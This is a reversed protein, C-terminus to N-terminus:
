QTYLKPIVPNASRYLNDIHNSCLLAVIMVLLQLPLIIFAASSTSSLFDQQYQLFVSECSPLPARPFCRIDYSPYDGLSRYGCCSLANQIILRDDRTYENIWSFKLKQYLSVHNRRFCIYGISTFMAFLPWLLIAYISLVKRSQRMIGIYGLLAIVIGFPPTVMMMYLANRNAIMMIGSDLYPKSWTAGKWSMVMVVTCAVSYFLLISNALFLLVKSRTWTKFKRMNQFEREQELQLRGDDQRNTTFSMMSMGAMQKDHDLTRRSETGLERSQRRKHFEQQPQQWQPQQQFDISQRPSSPNKSISPAFQSLM